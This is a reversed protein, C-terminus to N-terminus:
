GEHECIIWSSTTWPRYELFQHGSVKLYALPVTVASELSWQQPVQWTLYLQPNTRDKELYAIGMMKKHDDTAIGSFDFAKVKKQFIFLHSVRMGEARGEDSEEGSVRVNVKTQSTEDETAVYEVSINKLSPFFYEFILNM